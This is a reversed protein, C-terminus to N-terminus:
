NSVDDVPRSPKAACGACGGCGSRDAGAPPRFRARAVVIVKWVALAVVLLALLDTLLLAM